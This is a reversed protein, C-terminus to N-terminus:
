TGGKFRSDSTGASAELAVLRALIIIPAAEGITKAALQFRSFCCWLSLALAIGLGIFVAIPARNPNTADALALLASVSFCETLLNNMVAEGAAAPEAAAPQDV